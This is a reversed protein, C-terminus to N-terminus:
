KSGKRYLGVVGVVGVVSSLDTTPTPTHRASWYTWRLTAQATTMPERFTLLVGRQCSASKGFHTGTFSNM